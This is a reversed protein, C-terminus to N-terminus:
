TTPGHAVIADFVEIMAKSDLGCYERLNNAIEEAMPTGLHNIMKLYEAAADLGSQIALGKYSFEPVWAPLVTKISFSGRYEPHYTYVKVVDNLLDVECSELKAKVEAAFPYNHEFLKRISSKEYPSYTFIAGADKVLEWLRRTFEARPDSTTEALFEEHILPAGPSRRTHASYQFPIQEYPKTNPYIPVAPTAAEFDIHVHPYEAEVLKDYGSKLVVPARRASSASFNVKQANFYPTFLAHDTPVQDGWCQGILHCSKCKSKVEVPPLESSRILDAYHESKQQVEALVERVHQTVDLTWLFGDPDIPGNKQFDCNVLVVGAKSIQVGNDEAILWQMALEYLYKKKDSSIGTKTRIEKSTKAEWLGYTGDPLRELIDTIATGLASNFSAEYVFQSGADIADQTVNFKEPGREVLVGGPFLERAIEGVRRGTDFQYFTASTKKAELDPNQALLVMLRPCTEGNLYERKTFNEM